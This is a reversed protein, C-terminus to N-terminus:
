EARSRRGGVRWRWLALLGGGCLLLDVASPEPVMMSTRFAFDFDAGAYDRWIRGDESYMGQGADYSFKGGLQSRSYGKFDYAANGGSVFPVAQFVAAYREGAKLSLNLGEMGIHKYIGTQESLFSAPLVVFGLSSGSPKGQATTTQVELRLSAKLPEGGLPRIWFDFGELQGTRQPTFTQAGAFFPAIGIQTDLRVEAEPPTFSQDVVSEAECSLVLFFGAVFTLAQRPAGYSFASLCGGLLSM